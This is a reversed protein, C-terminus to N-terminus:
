GQPAKEPAYRLEEEVWVAAQGGAGTVDAEVHLDVDQTPGVILKRTDFAQSLIDADSSFYIPAFEHVAYGADLAPPTNVSVAGRMLSQSNEKMDYFDRYFFIENSGNKLKINALAGDTLTDYANEGSNGSTYKHGTKLLISKLSYGKPLYRLKTGTATTTILSSTDEYFVRFVRGPVFGAFKEIGGLARNVIVSLLPNGTGSGYASFTSATTQGSLISKDSGWFVRFQLNDYNPVDLLYRTQEELNCPYPVFPIILRFRFDNSASATTSFAQAGGGSSPVNKWYPARGFWHQNFRALEPGRMYFFTEIQKRIKHYGSIQISDILSWPGDALTGTPNNSAANTVRGQVYLSMSHLFKDDTYTNGQGGIYYFSDNASIAIDQFWQPRVLTTLSAM